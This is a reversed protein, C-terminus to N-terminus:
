SHSHLLFQLIQLLHLCAFGLRKITVPIIPIIPIIPLQYVTFTSPPTHASTCRLLSHSSHLCVFFYWFNGFSVLFIRGSFVLACLLWMKMQDAEIKSNDEQYCLRAKHLALSSLVFLFSSFFGTCPSIVELPVPIVSSILNQISSHISTGRNRAGLYSLLFPLPEGFCLPSSAISTCNNQKEKDKESPM